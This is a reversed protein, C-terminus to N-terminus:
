RPCTARAIARSCRARPLTSPSWTATACRRRPRAPESSRRCGSSAVRRDCRPVHQRRRRHRARSARRMTAVWDPSTMEAVLVDGDALLHGEAPSALIRVHGSAHRDGVGLGQLIPVESAGLTSPELTTLPRSQVVFLEDGVLAWEIDQASAYHREIDLGLHAIRVVEDDTLVRRWGDAADLEELVDGDPGTTIRVSQCGVRADRLMGTERDVHYTDPEVRGSVVVEGLGFAAEIVVQGREAPDVTFMVGSRDSAVMQQVVVAIAPEDFLGRDVRYSAVREGFLSAWCDTIRQLLEPGRVNTFTENMGAFSTDTSDEATASSRVAM